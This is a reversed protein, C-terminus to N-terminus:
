GTFPMRDFTQNCNRKRVIPLEGEPVTPARFGEEYPEELIGRECVLEEWHAGPTFGKGAMNELRSKATNEVIPVNNKIASILRSVLEAKLGNTAM